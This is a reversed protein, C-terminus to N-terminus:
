HQFDANYRGAAPGIKQLPKYVNVSGITKEQKPYYYSCTQSTKYMPLTGLPKNRYPGIPSYRSSGRSRDTSVSRASPPYNLSRWKYFNRGDIEPEETIGCNGKLGRHELEVTLPTFENYPRLSNCRVKAGIIHASTEYPPAWVRQRALLVSNPENTTPSSHIIAYTEAGNWDLPAYTRMASGRM